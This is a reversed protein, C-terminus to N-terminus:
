PRKATTAHGQVAVQERFRAEFQGLTERGVADLSFDRGCLMGGFHVSEHLDRLVDAEIAVLVEHDSARVLERVDVADGDRYLAARCPAADLPAAPRLSLVVQTPSRTPKALAHLYGGPFSAHTRLKGDRGVVTPSATMPALEPATRVVEPEPREDEGDDGAAAEVLVGAAGLLVAGLLAGGVSGQRDHGCGYAHRHKAALLACGSSATALCLMSSALLARRTLM